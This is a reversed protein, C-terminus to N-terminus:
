AAVWATTWVAPTSITSTGEGVRERAWAPRAEAVVLRSGPEFIITIGPQAYVDAKRKPNADALVAAVDWLGLVLQHIQEAKLQGGQNAESLEREAELRAGKVEAMWGDVM